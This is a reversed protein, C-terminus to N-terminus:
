SALTVGVSVYLRRSQHLAQRLETMTRAARQPMVMSWVLRTMGRRDARMADERLKERVVCDASSEGARLFKEYKWKGDFEAM